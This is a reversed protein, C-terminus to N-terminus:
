ATALRGALWSPIGGLLRFLRGAETRLRQAEPEPHVEALTVLAPAMGVLFGIEERLRLSETFGHRAEKMDGDRLALGALHRWTFSRLLDDGHEAAAEHARRYAARAWDPHGSLHEAVLGRRYDLVARARSAPALLAAARGLAARAEDARDHVRLVTATYALQGRECAALGRETDDGARAEAARLAEEAAEWGKGTYMCREALLAARQVAPGCEDAARAELLAAADAWCGRSRLRWVARQAPTDGGYTRQDARAM